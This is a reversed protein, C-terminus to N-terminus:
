RYQKVRSLCIFTNWDYQSSCIQLRVQHDRMHTQLWKIYGPREILLERMTYTPTDELSVHRVVVEGYDSNEFAAKDFKLLSNTKDEPWYRACRAQM